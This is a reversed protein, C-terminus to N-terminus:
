SRCTDFGDLPFVEIGYRICLDAVLNVMEDIQIKTIPYKGAIFPRETAGHMAAFSVGISGTNLSRTHPAYDTATSENDEPKYRGDVVNGNGEVIFHYHHKDLASATNTGATWHIIIRKM